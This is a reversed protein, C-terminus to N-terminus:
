DPERQSKVFHKFSVNSRRFGNPRVLTVRSVQGRKLGFPFTKYSFIIVPPPNMDLTMVPGSSDIFDSDGQQTVTM